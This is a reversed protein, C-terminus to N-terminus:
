SHIVFYRGLYNADSYWHKWNSPMFPFNASQLKFISVSDNLKEVSAVKCLNETLDM